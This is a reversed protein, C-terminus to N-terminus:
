KVWSRNRRSENNSSLDIKKNPYNEEFRFLYNKM